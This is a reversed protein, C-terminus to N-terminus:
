EVNKLIVAVGMGGGICLSALGYQYNHKKMLHILTVVIRNGSAGLPHGIAIAGGNLNTKALIEEKSLNYIESLEHVVGLSQAAFAENLELVDMDALTLGAQKLANKIAPTPGLGMVDPSVGGQGIAVIEVLPTLNEQKVIEQSVVVTASAGDNLGSANGATVSGEKLFAPRLSALKELDTRRNPYEDTEFIVPGKRTKLEIPTIEAQFAGEDVAKIAKEQSHLAFADQEERSIQYKKAINEATIGMHNGDFSDLLADHLISDTMSLDGMKNGQRVKGSVLFPAQSMVEVGGAVYANGQGAKIQTYANMIAKMGSGCVMNIAYAPVEIPVGAYISAQRAVGQKQGSSLVNGIIVEDIIEPKVQSEELVSKIVASGLEPANTDKLSGLFSGIPSRKAGVIYVSSM